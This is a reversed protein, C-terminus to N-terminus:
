QHGEAGGNRGVSQEEQNDRGHHRSQQYSVPDAAQAEGPQCEIELHRLVDRGSADDRRAEEHAIVLPEQGRKGDAHLRNALSAAGGHFRADVKGQDRGPGRELGHHVDSKRAAACVALVAEGEGGAEGEAEELLGRADGERPFHHDVGGDIGLGPEVIQQGANGAFDFRVIASQAAVEIAYAGVLGELTRAVDIPLRRGVHATQLNAFEGALQFLGDVDEEVAVHRVMEVRPELVGHVAAGEEGPAKGGVASRNVEAGGSKIEALGLVAVYISNELVKSQHVRLAGVGRLRWQIIRAKFNDEGGRGAGEAVGTPDVSAQQTRIIKGNRAAAWVWGGGVGAGGFSSGTLVEMVKTSFIEASVGALTVVRSLVARCSLGPVFRSSRRRSTGPKLRKRREELRAALGVVWPMESRPMPDEPALRVRTRQSPM